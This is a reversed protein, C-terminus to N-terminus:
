SGAISINFLKSLYGCSFKALFVLNQVKATCIEDPEEDSAVTPSPAIAIAGRVDSEMDLVDARRM